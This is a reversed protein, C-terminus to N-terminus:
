LLTYVFWLGLLATHVCIYPLAILSVGGLLHTTSDEQQWFCQTSLQVKLCADFGNCTGGLRPISIFISVSNNMSM